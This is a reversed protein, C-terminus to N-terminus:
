NACTLVKEKEIVKELSISEFNEQVPVFREADILFNGTGFAPNKKKCIHCTSVDPIYPAKEGYDVLWTKCCPYQYVGLVPYIHGKKPCGTQHGRICVVKQGVYFPPLNIESM